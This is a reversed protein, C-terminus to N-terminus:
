NQAAQMLLVVTLTSTLVGLWGRIETRWEKEAERKIQPVVITSGEKITPSFFWGDDVGANGGPYYVVSKGAKLELSVIRGGAAEIYNELSWDKRYKILGPSYVFGEVKVTGPAKPIHIDDGDKLVIGYSKDKLYAKKFDSVIRLTDRQLYTGEVFSESTLGGAREILDRFTEGLETLTYVGPFLVEGSITIKRPERYYPSRRIVVHDKNKLVFDSKNSDSKKFYDEALKVEHVISLPSNEDQSTNMRFVVAKYEYAGLKFGDAKLILDEVKMNETLKYEGENKVYGTIYVSEENYVTNVDFIRLQDGDKLFIDETKDGNLIKELNLDIIRTSIGDDNYRTLQARLLYTRSKRWEDLIGGRSFIFDSVRTSDALYEFGPNKIYGNIVVVKKSQLAWKSHIKVSDLPTLEINIDNTDLNLSKFEVKQDSHTRILEVRKTYADALVGGTRDILDILKMGHKFGYRGKRYVAGTIAVYETLVRPISEIMVIDRDHLKVPNVSIKSGKVETFPFSLLKSYVVPSEREEIPLLREINVLDVSASSLLGGSYRILDALTEDKKLEYKYPNFVEGRLEITNMRTGVFINDGNKLLVENVINGTQLYDYIDIVEEIKGNRLIQINRLTGKPTIGRAAILATLVTSNPNLQYPGQSVVEGTVFVNVVNLKDFSIDFYTSPNGEEPDVTRYKKSLFKRMTKELEDITQGHVSIVGVNDLYITGENSVDLRRQFETDGWVTLMFSDGPGIIHNTNRPSYLQPQVSKSKKEEDPNQLFIRYGYFDRISQYYVERDYYMESATSFKLKEDDDDIEILRKRKEEDTEDDDDDKKVDDKLDKIDIDSKEQLKNSQGNRIQELLHENGPKQLEELLKSPPISEMVETETFEDQIKTFESQLFDDQPFLSATLTMIFLITINKQIQVFRKLM